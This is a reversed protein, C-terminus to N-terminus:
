MKFLKYGNLFKQYFNEKAFFLRKCITNKCFSFSNYVTLLVGVFYIKTVPPTVEDKPFPIM